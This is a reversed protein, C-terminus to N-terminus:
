RPMGPFPKVLGLTPPPMPLANTMQDEAVAAYRYEDAGHSTWDHYPKELFMGRADDWEQHYQGIADLWFACHEEDVWLRTFMARGKAIGDDVPLKPVTTRKTAFNARHRRDPAASNRATGM